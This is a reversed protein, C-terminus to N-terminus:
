INGSGISVEGSTLTVIGKNTQVILEGNNNIDLVVGNNCVSQATFTIHKGILLSKQRYEVMLQNTDSSYLVNNLNNALTSIINNINVNDLNLTTAINAIDAPMAYNTLNIGIGIVVSTIATCAPNFTTECLIGSVKKNDIFIDNVWKIKPCLPTTQEITRAVAVAVLTTIKDINVTNLQKLVFSFYLGHNAPSHFSKGQRGRGSTQELSVVISNNKLSDINKKCYNNTSDITNFLMIDGFQGNLHSAISRKCLKFNDVM